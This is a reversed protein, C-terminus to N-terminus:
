RGITHGIYMFCGMCDVQIVVEGRVEKLLDVSTFYNDMYVTYPAEHVHSNDMWKGNQAHNKDGDM